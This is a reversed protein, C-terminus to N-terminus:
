TCNQRNRENKEWTLMTRDTAIRYIRYLAPVRALLNYKLKKEITVCDLLNYQDLGSKLLKTCHRKVQPYDDRFMASYRGLCITKFARDLLLAKKCDDTVADSIRVFREGVCILHHLSTSNILSDKRYYYYYMIHDIKIIKVKDALFLCEMSFVADEGIRLDPDFKRGELFDRRWIRGWVANRYNNDAMYESLSQEKVNTTEAFPEPLTYKDTKMYGGIAVDAEYALAYNLLSKIHEPHIWDDSDVFVIYSGTAAQLGTNRAAALGGNNQRIVHVRADEIAIRHLIESCADTSGDDVCIVEINKYTNAQISTLCRELYAEVNYVPVIVSILINEAVVQEDFNDSNM